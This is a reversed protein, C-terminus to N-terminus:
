HLAAEESDLLEEYLRVLCGQQGVELLKKNLDFSGVAPDRRRTVNLNKELVKDYLEWVIASVHLISGIQGVIQDVRVDHGVVTVHLDLKGDFGHKNDEIVLESVEHVM